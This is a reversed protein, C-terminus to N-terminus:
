KCLQKFNALRKRVLKAEPSDKYNSVLYEYIKRARKCSSGGKKVLIEGIRIIALSVLSSTPYLKQISAYLKTARDKDGDSALIEAMTFRAKAARTDKPFTSEFRQYIARAISRKGLRHHNEAAQWMGNADQALGRPVLLQIADLRDVLVLRITSVDSGWQKLRFQLTELIGKLKPFESELQSLRLGMNAGSKRLTQEAEKVAKALSSKVLQLRKVDEAMQKKLQAREADLAQLRKDLRVVQAVLTKHAKTSACSM